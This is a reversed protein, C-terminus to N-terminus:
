NEGKGTQSMTNDVLQVEDVPINIRLPGHGSGWRLFFRSPKWLAFNRYPVKMNTCRDKAASLSSSDRM